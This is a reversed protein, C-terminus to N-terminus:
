ITNSDVGGSLFLAVPVDAALRLSVSERLERELMEAADSFELTPDEDEPYDWYREIRITGDRWQLMEGPLLQWIRSYVTERGMTTRFTTLYHSVAALNPSKTFRPHRLLAAISSAFLLTENIETLFLPKVGFRDR